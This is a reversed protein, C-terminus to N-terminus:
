QGHVDNVKNVLLSRVVFQRYDNKERTLLYDTADYNKEKKKLMENLFLNKAPNFRRRRSLGTRWLIFVHRLHPAPLTRLLDRAWTPHSHRIILLLFQNSRVLAQELWDGRIVYDFGRFALRVIESHPIEDSQRHRVTPRFYRRLRGSIIRQVIKDGKNNLSITNSAGFLM